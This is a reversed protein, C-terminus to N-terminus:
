RRCDYAFAPPFNLWVVPSKSVSKFYNRLLTAFRKAGPLLADSHLYTLTVFQGGPKLVRMTADLLRVQESEPLLAWPLGSMICDVSEMGADRCITEVNGVCDQFLTIHPYRAEFAEAFRPNLEIAAFKAGPKLRRLVFETFVGTGPGFELVTDASHLDLDGVVAQALYRSSPVIAATQIPDAIFERLFRV